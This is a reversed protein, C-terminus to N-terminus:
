QCRRPQRILHQYQALPPQSPLAPGAYEGGGIINTMSPKTYSTIPTLFPFYLIYLIILNINGNVLGLLMSAIEAVDIEEIKGQHPDLDFALDDAKPPPWSPLRHRQHRGRM